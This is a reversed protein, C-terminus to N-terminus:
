LKSLVPLGAVYRTVETYVPWDGDPVGIALATLMKDRIIHGYPLPTRGEAAANLMLSIDKFALALTFGINSFNRSRINEAYGQIPPSPLMFKLLDAVKDSPLEHKEAFVYLQGLLEILCFLIYNTIIKLNSALPQDEGIVYIIACYTQIVPKALEVGDLPGAMFSVTKKEAVAEPRGVVPATVFFVGQKRHAEDLRKSVSASVTSVSVHVAGSRLSALIGDKSTSAEWLTHDSDLISLVVDATAAAERPTKAVKAGLDVLHKTKEITRNWVTV